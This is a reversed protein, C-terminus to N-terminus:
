KIVSTETLVPNGLERAYDLYTQMGEYHEPTLIFEVNNRFYDAVLRHTFGRQGSEEAIIRDLDNLGFQCSAHLLDVLDPTITGPRAAWLAFVMPLGTLTFWEQGLDLCDYKVQQPDVSLAADGILLAADASRLMENLNPSAAFVRPEAEFKRSLVIRALQVSTRSGTDAALTRIQDFPVKSFLLISRVPGKSAIGIGHVTEMGLRAAEVVPLIGIDAVGEQVREACISPLAFTLDLSGKQPGNLAGWVLPVTNLYSVACVRPRRQANPM